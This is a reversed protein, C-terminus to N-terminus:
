SDIFQKLDMNGLCWMEHKPSVAQGDLDGSRVTDLKKGHSYKFDLNVDIFRAGDHVEFLM